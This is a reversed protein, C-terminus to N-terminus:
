QNTFAQQRRFRELKERNAKSWAAVTPNADIRELLTEIEAIFASSQNNKGQAYLFEVQELLARALSQIQTEGDPFDHLLSRNATVLQEIKIQQLEVDEVTKAMQLEATLVRVHAQRVELTEASADSLTNLLSHAQDIILVAEGPQGAEIQAEVLRSMQDICICIADTRENVPTLEIVSQQAEVMRRARQVIQDATAKRQRATQYEQWAAKWVLARVPLSDPSSALLQTLLERGQQQFLDAQRLDGANESEIALDLLLEARLAAIASSSPFQELLRVSESQFLELAQRELEDGNYLWESYWQDKLAALYEEAVQRDSPRLGNLESYLKAVDRVSQIAVQEAQPVKLLDNKIRNVVVALQSRTLQFSQDADGRMKVLALNTKREAEYSRVILLAGIATVLFSAAALSASLAQWPHQRIWVRSREAWSAPRALITDGNLFRTLDDAFAQASDYRSSPEKRIAKLCITELDRPIGPRIISPALPMQEQQQKLVEFTQGRFPTVGTLCHYLTIGLSYVDSKGDLVQNRIQEPSMFEPTGLLGDALSLSQGGTEHVLGFDTLKARGDHSDLLVNAPKVDRHILNMGHAVQLGFAVQRIWEASERPSIPTRDLRQRLSEGYIFPMVLYPRGDCTESVSYIPVINDHVLKAAVRAERRFREVASSNDFIRMLKIAVPRELQMDWARFVIGMGGADLEREIAYHDLLGMDGARVPSNLFSLGIPRRSVSHAFSDVISSSTLRDLTECCSRCSEIHEAIGETSVGGMELWHSLETSNPCELKRTEAEVQQVPNM